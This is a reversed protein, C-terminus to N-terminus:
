IWCCDKRKTGGKLWGGVERMNEKRRGVLFFTCIRTRGSVYVLKSEKCEKAVVNNVCKIGRSLVTHFFHVFFVKNRLNYSKEEERVGAIWHYFPFNTVDSGIDFLKKRSLWFERGSLHKLCCFKLKVCKM